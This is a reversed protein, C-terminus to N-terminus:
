QMGHIKEVLDLGKDILDFYEAIRRLDKEDRVDDALSAIKLLLLDRLNSANEPMVHVCVRGNDPSEAAANLSARAGDAPSLAQKRVAPKAASVPVPRTDAKPAPMGPSVDSCIPCIIEGHYRFLPAGCTKCPDALMTAGIELFRAMKEVNPDSSMKILEYRVPLAAFYSRM